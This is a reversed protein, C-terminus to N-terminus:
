QILAWQPEGFHSIVFDGNSATLTGIPVFGVRRMFALAHRLDTRTFGILSAPQVTDWHMRLVNRAHEVLNGWGEPKVAYDVIWVDRLPGPHAAGCFPGSAYYMFPEGPLNDPAAGYIQQSPHAFFQAAEEVSIRRTLPDAALGALISSVSPEKATASTNQDTLM